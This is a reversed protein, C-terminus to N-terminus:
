QGSKERQGAVARRLSRKLRSRTIAESIFLYGFFALPVVSMLVFVLMGTSDLMALAGCCGGTDLLTRNM